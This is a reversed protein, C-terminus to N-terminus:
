EEASTQSPGTPLLKAIRSAIAGPQRRLRAAVASSSVGQAVLERILADEEPTWKEYARPHQSKIDAMRDDHGSHMENLRLAEEAAAFIDLFNVEPHMDVIQGYSWGAAILRLVIVSKPSLRSPEPMMADPFVNM